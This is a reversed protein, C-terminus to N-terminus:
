PMGTNMLPLGHCCMSTYSSKGNRSSSEDGRLPDVALPLWSGGPTHRRIKAALRVAPMHHQEPNILSDNKEHQLRADEYGIDILPNVYDHEFLPMSLWDPSRTAGTGLLRSIAELTGPL